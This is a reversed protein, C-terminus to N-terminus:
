SNKNTVVIQITKTKSTYTFKVDDGSIYVPVSYTAPETINSLDVYAKITSPDLSDLLSQVGKVSVTVKADNASLASAKLNEALGETVVTINEFDKSTEEEMSVTITVSTESISRAGTPKNIVKQYTKTESLNTVDVEVDIYNLTNLISEDAYVTVERVTSTINSIASGSRVEGTPVVRLPVTKSPSTITVTATVTSPVVEINTIEKGKDDYAVLKVNEVTYTGASTASIQNVDVIAKVNAITDLKEKYSKVIIEDRDLLVNSVVLTENLKDTNIVDTSITRVESIKPYIVVTVSSPSLIYSLNKVPNNYELNVKHTGAGLDSLDLSVRHDGLQRALYLEGTRGQLSIEAKDPIGEIVYAEENYESTVEVNSLILSKTTDLTIIEKDIVLFTVFALVLSVYILVTPKNLLRDIIGRNTSFRDKLFYVFRSIPTIFIKDLINGISKFLRIIINPKKPNKVKKM